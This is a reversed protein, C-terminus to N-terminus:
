KAVRDAYPACASNDWSETCVSECRQRARIYVKGYGPGAGNIVNVTITNAGNKIYPKLDFNVVSYYNTGSDPKAWGTASYRVRLPCSKGTCHPEISLRDSSKSFGKFFRSHTGLFQGNVRIGVWNDSHIAYIEFQTLLDAGDITFNFNAETMSLVATVSNVITLNTGDFTYTYGGNSISANGLSVGKAECDGKPAPCSVTLVRACTVEGLTAADTCTETTYTGPVTTKEIHCASSGSAPVPGPDAIVKKSGVMLPDTDKDIAFKAREVPMRQLYNVANCEQQDYANSAISSSCNAIKNTGQVGIASKGGGYLNKEPPATNYKPVNLAGSSTNISGAAAGRGKASNSFDQGAKFADGPTKITQAIVPSCCVAAAALVLRFQKM